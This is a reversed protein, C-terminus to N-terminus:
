FICHRFCWPQPWGSLKEGKDVVCKELAINIAVHISARIKGKKKTEIKIRNIYKTKFLQSYVSSSSSSLSRIFQLFDQVFIRSTTM